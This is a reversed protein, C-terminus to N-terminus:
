WGGIKSMLGSRGILMTFCNIDQSYLTCQPDFMTCQVSSLGFWLRLQLKWQATVHIHVCTRLSYQECEIYDDLTFM